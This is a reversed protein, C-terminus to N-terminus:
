PLLQLGFYQSGFCADAKPMEALEHCSMTEKLGVHMDAEGRLISPWITLNNRKLKSQLPNWRIKQIKYSEGDDWRGELEAWCLCFDTVILWVVRHVQAGTCLLGSLCPIESWGREAVPKTDPAKRKIFCGKEWLFDGIEYPLLFSQFCAQFLIM